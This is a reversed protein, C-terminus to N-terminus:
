EKIQSSNDAAFVEEGDIDDYCASNILSFLKSTMQTVFFIVFTGENRKRVAKILLLSRKRVM